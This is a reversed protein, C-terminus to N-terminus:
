LITLMEFVHGDGGAATLALGIPAAAEEVGEPRVKGNAAPYCLAGATIAASATAEVSGPSNALRVLVSQSGNSALSQTIGHTADDAGALAVTRNATLKVRLNPGIGGSSDPLFSM